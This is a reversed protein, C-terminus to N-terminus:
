ADLGIEGLRLGRERSQLSAVLHCGESGWDALKAFRGFCLATNSPKGHNNKARRATPRWATLPSRRRPQRV